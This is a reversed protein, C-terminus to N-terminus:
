EIEIHNKNKHITIPKSLQLIEFIQALPMNDFKGTYRYQKTKESKFDISIDFTKELANTIVILPQDTFVLSEAVSSTDMITHNLKPLAEITVSDHTSNANYTTLKQGPALVFNNDQHKKLSIAVKGKVLVTEFFGNKFTRVNFSTGLVKIDGAVTHIIFPHAPDHAVNFYAEGSFTVERNHADFHKSYSLTSNSNLTVISGDVLKIVSKTNQATSAEKLLAPTKSQRAILILGVIIITSFLLYNVIKTKKSKTNVNKHDRMQGHDQWLGKLYMNVSHSAYYEEALEQEKDVDSFSPKIIEDVFFRLEPNKRVIHELEELEHNSAEGSLKLAVLRYFTNETRKDM